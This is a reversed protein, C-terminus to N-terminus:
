SANDVFNPYFFHFAYYETINSLIWVTFFGFLHLFIFIFFVIFSILGYKLFLQLTYEDKFSSFFIRNIPTRRDKKILVYYIDNGGLHQITVYDNNNTRLLLRIAGLFALITSLYARRKKNKIFRSNLKYYIDGFIEEYHM